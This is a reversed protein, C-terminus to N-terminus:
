GLSPSTYISFFFFFGEIDLFTRKVITEKLLMIRALTQMLINFLNYKLVVNTLFEAHTSDLSNKRPTTCLLLM